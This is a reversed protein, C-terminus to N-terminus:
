ARIVAELANRLQAKIVAFSDGPRCEYLKRDGYFVSPVNYYDYQAAICSNRREEIWEIQLSTLGPVEDSLERLAAAANRCYPCSELYFVTVANKM